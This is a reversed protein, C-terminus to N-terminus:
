RMFTSCNGNSITLEIPIYNINNYGIKITQKISLQNKPEKMFVITIYNLHSKLHKSKPERSAPM